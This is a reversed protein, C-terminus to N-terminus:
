CSTYRLAILVELCGVDKTEVDSTNCTGSDLYRDLQSTKAFIVGRSMTVSLAHFQKCLTTLRSKVEIKSPKCTHSKSAFLDQLVQTDM